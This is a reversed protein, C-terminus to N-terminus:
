GQKPCPSLHFCSFETLFFFTDKNKSLSERKVGEGREGEEELERKLGLEDNERTASSVLERVGRFLDFIQDLFFFM